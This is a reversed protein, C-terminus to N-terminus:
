YSHFSRVFKKVSRNPPLIMDSGTMVSIFSISGIAISTLFRTARTAHGRLHVIYLQQMNVLSSKTAPVDLLVMTGNDFVIMRSGSSACVYVFWINM